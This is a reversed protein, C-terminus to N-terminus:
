ISSTTKLSFTAKVRDFGKGPASPSIRLNFIRVTGGEPCLIEVVSKLGAYSGELSFPTDNDTYTAGAKPLQTFTIGFEKERGKVTEAAAVLNDTPIADLVEPVKVDSLAGGVSFRYVTEASKSQPPVTRSTLSGTGELSSVMDTMSKYSFAMGTIQYSGDYKIVASTLWVRPAVSEGLRNLLVFAPDPEKKKEVPKPPPPPPAVVPEVVPAKKPIYSMIKDKYFYGAACLAVILLIGLLVKQRKKSGGPEDEMVYEEEVEEPIVDSVTAAESAPAAVPAPAADAKKKSKKKEKDGSLNIKLM